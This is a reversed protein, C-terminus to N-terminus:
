SSSHYRSQSKRLFLHMSVSVFMLVFIIAAIPIITGNFLHGAVAIVLSSLALRIAGLLASSTGRLEPYINLAQSIFPGLAIATGAAFLSMIITILNPNHPFMLTLLLLLAAAISVIFLGIRQSAQISFKKLMFAAIFSFILFTFMIVAQYYGVQHQSVGLYNVFLLSLNAIYVIIGAYMLCPITGLIIFKKDRLLRSYSKVISKLNLKEVPRHTKPEEFIIQMAILSFLALILIFIFNARWNFFLTLYNGIVPAAAMSGTIVSNAISILQAAKREEYMEAIVAFGIVAPASSGLGQIFRWIILQSLTHSLVCGLSGLAFITLGVVIVKKRGFHDSAPGYLLCGIAVGIFNISLIWQLNSSTTAFHHLMQPLAPVYIDLEINAAILTLILVAPLLRQKM